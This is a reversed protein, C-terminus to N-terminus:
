DAKKPSHVFTMTMEYERACKSCEVKFGEKLDSEWIKTEANCDGVKCTLTAVRPLVGRMGVLYTLGCYKCSQNVETGDIPVRLGIEKDCRVCQLHRRNALNLNFITSALIEDVIGIVQECKKRLYEPKLKKPKKLQAHTPVHLYSGLSDYYEKIEKMRISRETGLDTEGDFNEPRDPGLSIKLNGGMAAFPEVEIIRQLLLRPQWTELEKDPLDQVFNKAKEYVFCELCMRLFLTALTLDEDTNLDIRKRAEDRLERARARYDM